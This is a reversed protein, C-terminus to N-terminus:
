ARDNCLDAYLSRLRSEVRDHRFPEVQNRAAESMKARNEDNVLLEHLSKSLKDVNGPVVLVGSEGDAVQEPIGAIDTSVVPVGAAQAETIVRPTGERYSPLAFLDAGALLAPVDDRHGLLRINEIERKDIEKKLDNALPGDGVIYCIIPIDIREVAKLLDFLGKGKVLRGVYLVVPNTTGTVESAPEADAFTDIEIGHYITTYQEARGIGREVYDDRIRDSKVIIRTTILATLQEAKVLLLNLVSNRDTTIPDGHVEHIVVATRAIWGAMRGIIGAETSHTHIVDVDNRLLFFAVSLVAVVAAAPNYHRISQFVVTEAGYDEITALADADHSAGTGLILEYNTSANLLINIENETTAEAGGDLYRTILHLITIQDNM